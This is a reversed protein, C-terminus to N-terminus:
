SVMGDGSFLVEYLPRRDGGFDIATRLEDDGVVYVDNAKLLRALREGLANSVLQTGSLFPGESDHICAFNGVLSLRLTLAQGQSAVLLCRSCDDNVDTSEQVSGLSALEEVVDDYLGEKIRKAVFSWDPRELSGYAKEISRNFDGM